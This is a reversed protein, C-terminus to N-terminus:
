YDEPPPAPEAAATPDIHAELMRILAQLEEGCGRCMALHERVRPLVEDPDIGARLMDVYRDLVDYCDECSVEEVHVNFIIKMVTTFRQTNKVPENM